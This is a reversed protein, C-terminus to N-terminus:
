RLMGEAAWRGMSFAGQLLFGGTPADWDLMEGAVFFHPHQRLSLDTAVEQVAIGGVTSIAESIPRLAKVPIRVQKVDEALTSGDLFRMLPTFAKLVAVSPRDLRLAAMREKWAADRLKQEIQEVTLDPKLDLVLHAAVGSAIAERICPVVPYIANGELGYRTITVEGRVTRDGCMVAINKLPKGAHLVLAEPLDIEVGCNSAQFPVVRVGIAGFHPLWDGSSGTKPWSAGGLAFLVRPADIVIRIDGHLVIPRLDEDFGVFRHGTHIRVGKRVLVTNIAKLVEAPKIGREPFVRGSSGVYTPVGLGALWGRLEDPGYRALMPSLLGAPAYHALLADGQTNNTINLGGEGAVLFKRGVTRSGEYLDVQLKGALFAAAVLGAPGAGIIAVRDM